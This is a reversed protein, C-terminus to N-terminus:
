LGPGPIPQQCRSITFHPTSHPTVRDRQTLKRHARSNPVQTHWVELVHSDPAAESQPYHTTVSITSSEEGSAASLVRVGFQPRLEHSTNNTWAIHPATM